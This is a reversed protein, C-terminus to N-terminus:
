SLCKVALQCGYSNKVYRFPRVFWFSAWAKLLPEDSATRRGLSYPVEQKELPFFFRLVSYISFDGYLFVFLLSLEDDEVGLLVRYEKGYISLVGFGTPPNGCLCSSGICCKRLVM